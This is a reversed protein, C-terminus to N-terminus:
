QLCRLSKLEPRRSCWQRSLRLQSHLGPSLFVRGPFNLQILFLRSQFKLLLLSLLVLLFEHFFLLSIVVISLKQLAFLLFGLLLSFVNFEPECFEVQLLNLECVSLLLQEFFLLFQQLIFLFELLLKGM